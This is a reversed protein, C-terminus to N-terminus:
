CGTQLRIIINILNIKNIIEREFNKNWISVKDWFVFSKDKDSFHAFISDSNLFFLLRDVTFGKSLKSIFDFTINRKPYAKTMSEIKQKVVKM